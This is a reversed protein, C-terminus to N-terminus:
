EVGYQALYNDITSQDKSFVGDPITANIANDRIFQISEAYQEEDMSASQSVPIVTKGSFDFKNLFTGVTMPCTHWWIPYCLVITDYEAISNIANKLPPRANSDAEDKAEGYAVTNYDDSYPTEREIRYFDAGTNSIINNAIGESTGSWSFYAVLIKNREPTVPEPQPESVTESSSSEPESLTESSSEVSSSIEETSTASSSETQTSVTSNEVSTTSSTTTSSTTSATSSSTTSSSSEYINAISQSPENNSCASLSLMAFAAVFIAALKKTIKM